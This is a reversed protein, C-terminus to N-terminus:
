SDSDREIYEIHMFCGIHSYLFCSSHWVLLVQWEIEVLVLLTWESMWCINISCRNYGLMCYFDVVPLVWVTHEQHQGARMDIRSRDPNGLKDVQSNLIDEQPYLGRKKKIRLVTQRQGIVSQLLHLGATGERQLLLPLPSAADAWIEAQFRKM